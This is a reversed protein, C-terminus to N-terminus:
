FLLQIYRGPFNRVKRCFIPSISCNQESEM